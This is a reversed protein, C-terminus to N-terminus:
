AAAFTSPLFNSRYGGRRRKTSGLHLAELVVLKEHLLIDNSKNASVYLVHNKFM